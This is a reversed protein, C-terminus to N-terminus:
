ACVYIKKIYFYLWVLFLRRVVAVFQRMDTSWKKGKTTPSLVPPGTAQLTDTRKSNVLFLFLIHAVHRAFVAFEVFSSDVFLILNLKAREGLVAKPAMGHFPTTRNCLEIVFMGIAWVDVKVGYPKREIIEPAM